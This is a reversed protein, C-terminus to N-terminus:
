KAVYYHTPVFPMKTVLAPHQKKRVEVALTTGPRSHAAEVYGMAINKGLSPSPCGSTVAGPSVPLHAPAPPGLCGGVSGGWHRGWTGVPRGEPDLIVAHPRVPPGVSTLGVRKRKPKEKAQAMIIAAGPFDMAARRRKGIPHLPALAPM